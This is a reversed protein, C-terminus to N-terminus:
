RWFSNVMASYLKTVTHGFLPLHTCCDLQPQIFTENLMYHFYYQKEWEEIRDRLYFIFNLLMKDAAEHEVYQAM